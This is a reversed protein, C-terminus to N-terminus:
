RRDKSSSNRFERGSARSFTLAVSAVSQDGGSARQSIEKPKYARVVGANEHRGQCQTQDFERESSARRAQAPKM